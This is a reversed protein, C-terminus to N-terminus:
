ESSCKAKLSLSMLIYWSKKELSTQLFLRHGMKFGFSPPHQENDESASQTDAHPNESGAGLQGDLIAAGEHLGCLPNQEEDGARRMAQLSGGEAEPQLGVDTM